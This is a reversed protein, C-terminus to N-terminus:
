GGLWPGEARPGRSLWRFDDLKLGTELAGFAVLISLSIFFGLVHLYNNKADRRVGFARNQLGLRGSESRSIM